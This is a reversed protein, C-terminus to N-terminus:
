RRLKKKLKISKTQSSATGGTATFTITVTVKVKGKTNLKRKRKGKAKVPLSVTGPGSATMRPSAFGRADRASKQPVVGKGTLELTGAAELTVPLAATGKKKNLKPKGITFASSVPTPTPTAPPTVAASTAAASGDANTATVTCSLQHGADADAVTYTSSTAGAIASGDRNWQHAYTQPTLGSWSGQSCSLVQGGAAIGSIEPAATNVPPLPTTNLLLTVGDTASAVALDPKTDSNYDRVVVPVPADGTAFPSGAAPSFGGSGDGLLVAVQDDVLKTVALDPKGDLNFDGVAVWRAYSGVGFPSGSAASLGGSGDGLLVSVNNLGSNSSAFDLKGDSNLDAAVTSGAVCGCAFPSGTSPSFDGTGDGLLVSATGSGNIVALDSKGDANFDGASPTIADAFPSNAAETFDGSGDGLLVSMSNLGDNNGVALDPKGDVKFDGVTVWVPQNGVTFPSNAAETFSGTGDGLLVSVNDDAFNATVIDPKGDGDFDAVAVSVPTGGVASNMAAGFGGSGDGLLVSVNDTGQNGTALDPKTDVNFDGGAMSTPSTGVGFPSGTAASFTLAAAPPAALLLGMWGVVGLLVAAM